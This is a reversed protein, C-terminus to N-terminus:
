SAVLLLSVAAEFSSLEAWPSSRPPAPPESRTSHGTPTTLVVGIGDGDPRSRWGPAEKTYNCRECLGQGNAPHTPGDDVHRRVHDAHRIPAGCWPTRCVRDRAVLFQRVSHSFTRRRSDATILQGSGPDTYLRRIFVKVKPDATYVMRCALEAPIPGYGTVIAPERDGDFLTRDTMVLQIDLNVGAPISGPEDPELIAGADADPVDLAPATIRKVFEDAMLQGRSRTDGVATATDACRVLSAFVAVGQAVPLLATVYSMTDPAPRISVRREGIARRNRKVCSEADLRQAILAAAQATQRDGLAGMRGALEEDVTRRDGVSLCATERVLLTARWESIVGSQLASFANPMEHMLAKALGVHRGGRFPSDRRALAIQAGISRHTGEERLQVATLNRTQSAVFAVTAVAQAAACAAKVRELQTILDILEVDDANGDVAALRDVWGAVQVSAVRLLRESHHDDMDDM